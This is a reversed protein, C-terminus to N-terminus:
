EQCTTDRHQTRHVWLGGANQAGMSVGANQAGMLVGAHQAGM